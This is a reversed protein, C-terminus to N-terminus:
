SSAGTTIHATGARATPLLKDQVACHVLIMPHTSCMDVRSVFPETTSWIRILSSKLATISRIAPSSWSERVAKMILRAALSARARPM